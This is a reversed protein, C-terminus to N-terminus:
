GDRRCQVRGPLALSEEEAHHRALADPRRPVPMQRDPRCRSARAQDGSGGGAAARLGGAEAARGRARPNEGNQRGGSLVRDLAKRPNKVTYMFLTDYRIDELTTIELGYVAGIGFFDVRFNGGISKPLSLRPFRRARM